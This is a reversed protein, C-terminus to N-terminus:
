PKHAVTFRGARRAMWLVAAGAAVCVLLCPLSAEPGFAGGTLWAPLRQEAVSSAMGAGFSSGSVAAGFVYGQMFNWGAHVGISVWLRGTLAYFAGLMLGAEIAVCAVTFVTAGPNAAHGAGFLVASMIFATWPGFARWTLRLIVGRVLVEEFVGSEIALGAGQWASAAGRYDVHYAGIAVLVLMVISFLALGIALGTAIGLPAARLDLEVPNRAEGMRVLLAYSALVICAGALHAVFQPMPQDPLAHSLAEMGPGFALVIAFILTAVWGIARAPLWKGPRLVRRYGLQPQIGLSMTM